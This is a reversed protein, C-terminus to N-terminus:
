NHFLTLSYLLLILDYFYSLITHTWNWFFWIIWCSLFNSHFLIFLYWIWRTKLDLLGDEASGGCKMFVQSFLFYFTYSPLQFFVPPALWFLPPFLYKNSIFFILFYFWIFCGFSDFIFQFTIQFLLADTSKIEVYAVEHSCQTIFYPQQNYM